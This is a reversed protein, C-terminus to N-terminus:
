LRVRRFVGVFVILFRVVKLVLQIIKISRSILNKIRLGSLIGMLVIVVILVIIRNVIVLCFWVMLVLLISCLVGYCIMMKENFIYRIIQLRCLVLSVLYREFISFISVFLFSQVVVSFVLKRVVKRDEMMFLMGVMSILVREILLFVVVFMILFVIIQVLMILQLRFGLIVGILLRVVSSQSCIRECFFIVMVQFYQKWVLIMMVRGISNIVSVVSVSCREKVKYYFVLIFLMVM